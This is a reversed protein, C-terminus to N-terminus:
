IPLRRGIYTYEVIENAILNSQIRFAGRSSSNQFNLSRGRIRGRALIMSVTHRIISAAGQCSDNTYYHFVDVYFLYSAVHLRIVIKWESVTQLIIRSEHYCFLEHNLAGETRSATHEKKHAKHM